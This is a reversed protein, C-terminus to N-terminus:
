QVGFVNPEQGSLVGTIFDHRCTQFCSGRVHSLSAAHNECASVSCTYSHLAATAFIWSNLKQTCEDRFHLMSSMDRFSNLAHDTGRMTM